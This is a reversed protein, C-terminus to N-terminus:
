RKRKLNRDEEKSNGNTLDMKKSQKRDRMERCDRRLRWNNHTQLSLFDSCPSHEHQLAHRM